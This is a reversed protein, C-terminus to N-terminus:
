SSLRLAAGGVAPVTDVFLRWAQDISTRNHSLAGGYWISSTESEPTRTWMRRVTVAVGVLPVRVTFFPPLVARRERPLELRLGEPSVDVLHSPVGNVSAEFRNVPKRVSRRVPKDLIAMSVFCALMTCDLPRALYMIQGNVADGQRASPIDGILITIAQGNRARAHIHLGHKFALGADAILVDFPRARMEEAAGEATPRRIPEHGESALREAVAGAELSNPLTIIVRPREVVGHHSCHSHWDSIRAIQAARADAAYPHALRSLFSYRPDPMIM